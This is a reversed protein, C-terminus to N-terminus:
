ECNRQLKLASSLTPLAFKSPDNANREHGKKRRAVGLKSVSDVAADSLSTSELLTSSKQLLCPTLRSCLAGLEGMSVLAAAPFVFLPPRLPISNPPLLFCCKDLM